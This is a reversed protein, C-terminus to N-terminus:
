SGEPTSTLIENLLDQVEAKDAADRARAARRAQIRADELSAQGEAERRRHIEAVEYARDRQDSEDELPDFPTEAYRALIADEKARLQLWADEEARARAADREEDTMLVRDFRDAM